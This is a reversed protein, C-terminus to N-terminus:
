TSRINAVVSAVVNGVGLCGPKAALLIRISVSVDDLLGSQLMNSLAVTVISSPRYSTLTSISSVLPIHMVYHAKKM